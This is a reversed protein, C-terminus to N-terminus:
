PIMNIRSKHRGGEFSETLFHYLIELSSIEDTIKSGLVLINANNHRRAKIAMEPSTCLAARIGEFRNACISMGIGTGCILIGAAVESTNSIIIETYHEEQHQNPFRRLNPDKNSQNVFKNTHSNELSLNQWADHEANAYSEISYTSSETHIIASQEDILRNQEYFKKQHELDLPLQAASEEASLVGYINSELSKKKVLPISLEQPKENAPRVLAEDCLAQQKFLRYDVLAFFANDSLNRVSTDQVNFEVDGEVEYRVFQQSPPMPLNQKLFNQDQLSQSIVKEQLVEGSCKKTMKNQCSINQLISKCLLNAFIPYDCAEESNCGLDDVLISNKRLASILFKKLRFGAHDSAIFFKSM